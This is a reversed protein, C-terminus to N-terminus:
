VTGWMTVWPQLTRDDWDCRTSASGLTRSDQMDIAYPSLIPQPM